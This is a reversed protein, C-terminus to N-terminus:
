TLHFQDNLQPKLLSFKSQSQTRVPPSCALAALAFFPLGLDVLAGSTTATILWAACAWKAARQYGNDLDDAGLNSSQFVKLFFAAFFATGVIGFNAIVAVPFSSARLSGTGVGFGFTDLFNQIAQRNWSSREIGSDTAMKNLVFTDAL